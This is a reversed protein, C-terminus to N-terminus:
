AGICQGCEVQRGQTNRRLVVVGNVAGHGRQGLLANVDSHLFLGAAVGPRCRACPSMVFSCRGKLWHSKPRNELLYDMSSLKSQRKLLLGTRVVVAKAM